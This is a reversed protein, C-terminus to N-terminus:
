QKPSEFFAPNYDIKVSKLLDGVAQQLRQSRIRSDIVTRVEDLSKFEQGQVQLISYGAPSKVPESIQGPQLPFVAEEISPPMQGKTFWGLDGFNMASRPDDSETAAIQAFDEGAKIRQALNRAKALAEAETLEKAGPKLPLPSGQARVLIQRAHVREFDPKHAEYYEKRAADDIQIDDNLANQGYHALLEDVQYQTQLQVEQKEDLKRRRAEIALVLVTAIQDAFQKRGPGEAFAKQPAALLGALINFQAATLHLDGITLVVTEPPVQPPPPPIPFQFTRSGPDPRDGGAPAPAPVGAAQRSAPAPTQAVACVLPCVLLMSGFFTM